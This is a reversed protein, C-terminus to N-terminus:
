VTHNTYYPKPTAPGYPPAPAHVYEGEKPLCRLDRKALELFLENNEVIVSECWCSKDSREKKDKRRESIGATQNKYALFHSVGRTLPIWAMDPDLIYVYICLWACWKLSMAYFLSVSIHLM